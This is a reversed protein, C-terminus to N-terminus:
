KETVKPGIGSPRSEKRLSKKKVEGNPDPHGTNAAPVRAKVM